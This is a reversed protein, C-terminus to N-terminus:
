GGGETFMGIKGQATVKVKASGNRKERKERGKRKGIACSAGM